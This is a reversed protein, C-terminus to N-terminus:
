DIDAISSQIQRISVWDGMLVIANYSIIKGAASDGDINYDHTTWLM